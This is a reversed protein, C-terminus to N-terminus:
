LSDTQPCQHYYLLYYLNIDTMFWFEGWVGHFDGIYYYEVKDAQVSRPANHMCRDRHLFTLFGCFVCLVQKKPEPPNIKM